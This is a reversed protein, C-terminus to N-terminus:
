QVMGKILGTLYSAFEEGSPKVLVLGM